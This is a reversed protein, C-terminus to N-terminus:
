WLIDGDIIQQLYLAYGSNGMQKRNGAPHGPHAPILKVYVPLLRKSLSIILPYLRTEVGGALVIRKM